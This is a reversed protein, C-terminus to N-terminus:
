QREEDTLYRESISTRYLRCNGGANVYRQKETDLIEQFRALQQKQLKNLKNMIAIEM